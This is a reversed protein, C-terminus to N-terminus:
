RNHKALFIQPIFFKNSSLPLLLWRRILQDFHQFTFHKRVAGCSLFAHYVADSNIAKNHAPSPGAALHHHGTNHCAYRAFDLDVRVSPFSLPLCTSSGPSQAPPPVTIYAQLFGSAFAHTSTDRWCCRSALARMAGYRFTSPLCIQPPTRGPRTQLVLCLGIDTM